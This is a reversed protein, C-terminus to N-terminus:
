EKKVTANKWAKCVEEAQEKTLGTITVTYRDDEAPAQGIKDVAAQLAAWTKPGCIGDQQIPLAPVLLGDEGLHIQFAGVVPHDFFELAKEGVVAIDAVPQIVADLAGSAIGQGKEASFVEVHNGAKPVDYDDQVCVSYTTTNTKVLRGLVEGEGSVVVKMSQASLNCCAMMM